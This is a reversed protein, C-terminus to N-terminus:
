KLLAISNIPTLNIDAYHGAGVGTSPTVGNYGLYLRLMAGGTQNNFVRHMGLQNSLNYTGYKYYTHSPKDGNWGAGPYICVYGSACGHSTAASAPTAIGLAGVVAATVSLAALAFKRKM